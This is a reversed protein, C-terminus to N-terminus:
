EGTPEPLKELVVVDVGGLRLEGALALGSPGAGVVVVPVDIHAQKM